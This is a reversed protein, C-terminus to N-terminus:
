QDTTNIQDGSAFPAVYNFNEKILHNLPHKHIIDILIMTVPICKIVNSKWAIITWIFNQSLWRASHIPAVYKLKQKMFHM